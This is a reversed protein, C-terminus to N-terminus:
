TIDRPKPQMDWVDDSILKKEKLVRTHEAHIEGLAKMVDQPFGQRNSRDTFLTEELYKHLELSCWLMEIRTLIKPYKDGIIERPPIKPPPAVEEPKAEHLNFNLEINWNLPQDDQTAM